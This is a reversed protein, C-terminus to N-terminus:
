AADGAPKLWDFGGDAGSRAHRRDESEAARQEVREFRRRRRPMDLRVLEPDFRPRAFLPTGRRLAQMAVADIVNQYQEHITADNRATDRRDVSEVAACETM